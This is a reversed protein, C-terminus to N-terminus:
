GIYTWPVVLVGLEPDVGGVRVLHRRRTAMQRSTTPSATTYFSALLINRTYFSGHLRYLPYDAPLAIDLLVPPLSSLTLANSNTPAKPIAACLRDTDAVDSVVVFRSGGLDVPIKLSRLVVMPCATLISQSRIFTLTLSSATRHSRVELVEWEEEQFDCM